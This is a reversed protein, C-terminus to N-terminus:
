GAGWTNPSFNCETCKAGLQINHSANSNYADMHSQLHLANQIFISSTYPTQVYIFVALSNRYLLSYLTLFETRAHSCHLSNEVSTFAATHPTWYLLSYLMIVDTCFATWDLCYFWRTSAVPNAEWFVTYHPLNWFPPFPNAWGHIICFKNKCTIPFIESPLAVSAETLAVHIFSTQAGDKSQHWLDLSLSPWAHSSYSSCQWVLAAPQRTQDDPTSIICHNFRIICPVQLCMIGLNNSSLNICCSYGRQTVKTIYPKFVNNCKYQLPNHIQSILPTVPESTVSSVYHVTLTFLIM